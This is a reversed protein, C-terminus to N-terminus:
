PYLRSADFHSTCQGEGVFSFINQLLQSIGVLCGFRSYECPQIWVLMSWLFTPTTVTTTSHTNPPQIRGIQPSDTSSSCSNLKECYCNWPRWFTNCMALRRKTFDRRRIWVIGDEEALEMGAAIRSFFFFFFPSRMQVHVSANRFRRMREGERNREREKVFYRTLASRNNAHAIIRLILSKFPVLSHHSTSSLWSTGNLYYLLSYCRSRPAHEQRRM